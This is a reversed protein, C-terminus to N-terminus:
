LDAPLTQLLVTTGGYAAGIEAVIRPRDGALLDLLKVVESRIQFPHIM